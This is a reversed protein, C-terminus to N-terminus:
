AKRKRKPATRKREAEDLREAKKRARPATTEADINQSALGIRLLRRVADSRTKVAPHQQRGWDTILAVIEKTLRVLVTETYVQGPPRGMRKKYVTKEQKVM